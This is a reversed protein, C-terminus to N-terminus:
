HIRAGIVHPDGAAILADEVASADRKRGLAILYKLHAQQTRAHTEVEVLRWRKTERELFPEVVSRAPEARVARVVLVANFEGKRKRNREGDEAAAATAAPGHLLHRSSHGLECAGYDMRNMLLAMYSFVMSLAAAAPLAGVGAALGVGIALFIFLTDRPETLNNRYRIAGVIGALSFALAISNRVVVIVGAVSLGLLLMSQIVSQDFGKRRASAMYVWSPPVMLFFSGVMAVALLLAFELSFAAGGQVPAASTLGSGETVMAALRDAGFAPRAAPVLFCVLVGVGILAAYYLTISVLPAEAPYTFRRVVRQAVLSGVSAVSSQRDPPIPTM